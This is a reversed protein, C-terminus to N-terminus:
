IDGSGRTSTSAITPVFYNSIGEIQEQIMLSLLLFLSFSAIMTTVFDVYTIKRTGGHHAHGAKNIKIIIISQKTAKDAM